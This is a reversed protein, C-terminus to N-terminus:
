RSVVYDVGIKSQFIKGDGLWQMTSAFMGAAITNAGIDIHQGLEADGITYDYIQTAKDTKLARYVYISSDGEHSVADYGSGFVSGSLTPTDQQNRLQDAM